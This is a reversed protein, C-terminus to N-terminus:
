LHQMLSNHKQLEKKAHRDAEYIDKTAERLYHFHCLGHAVEPLSTRVAKRISQQGDSVVASIPLGLAQKVRKLMAGLAEHSSSLLSEALLLEGSICERIAWLVEHGMTPQLGDIALIVVGVAAGWGILDWPLQGKGSFGEALSAFLSAQPASLEKGGIGGPTNEHLLTLVPAMVFSAVLVGLIQMVVHLPYPGSVESVFDIEPGKSIMRDVTRNALARIEGEMKALNRPMFWDQTLKRYKPHIPADFVVLSDVLMNSGTAQRSFETADRTAFVVPKPNNLFAKNDKSIRMVDEYRTILWFPEFLAGDDPEVLAVPASERLHDFTDLLGNWEAYAHPDIVSRAVDGPLASM